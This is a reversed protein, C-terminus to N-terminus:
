FSEIFKRSYEAIKEENGTVFRHIDAFSITKSDPHFQALKLADEPKSFWDKEAYLILQPVGIEEEKGRIDYRHILDVLIKLQVYLDTDEFRKYSYDLNKEEEPNKKRMYIKFYASVIKYIIWIIPFPVYRMLSFWWWTRNKATTSSAIIAKPRPGRKDICYQYAIEAGVCSGFIYYQNEKLKYHEIIASLDDVFNNVKYINRKRPGSSKGYGRPEFMIVSSIKRYAEVLPIRRDINSLWGPIILLIRDRYNEDHSPFFAHRLIIVPKKSVLLFDEKM